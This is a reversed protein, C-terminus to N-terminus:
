LAIMLPLIATQQKGVLYKLRHLGTLADFPVDGRQSRIAFDIQGEVRRASFPHAVQFTLNEGFQRSAAPKPCEAVVTWGLLNMTFKAHALACELLGCAGQQAFTGDLEAVLSDAQHLPSSDAPPAFHLM